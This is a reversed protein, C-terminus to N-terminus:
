PSRRLIRIWRWFNLLTALSAAVYTLACALLIRRATPLESDPLYGSALLPLARRFSADFEVPLTVLHIVVPIGLTAIGALLLALGAAPTQTLASVFPMAVLALAGLREAQQSFMALRTRWYLPRYGLHDQLAHGVEHTAVVVATLSHGELIEPRLRVAKAQPDYHDGFETEEVKTSTIHLREILHRALEGGSGPIDDQRGSHRQLVRRAWWQPGFVVAIVLFILLLAHM